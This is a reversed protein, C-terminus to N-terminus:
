RGLKELYLPLHYSHDIKTNLHDIGSFMFPPHAKAIFENPM